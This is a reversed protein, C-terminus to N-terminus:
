RREEPLGEVYRGTAAEPGVQGDLSFTAIREEPDDLTSSNLHLERFSVIKDLAILVREVGPAHSALTKGNVNFTALTTSDDDTPQRVTFNLDELQTDTPMVAAIDQLFGALSIENGMALRLVEDSREHRDALEEFAVLEAKDGRLKSTQTQEALLQDEAANVQSTTWLHVGGLTALLAVAALGVMARQQAARDRQKTAEPLLNVRVSM